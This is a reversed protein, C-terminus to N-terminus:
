PEVAGLFRAAPALPEVAFLLQKLRVVEVPDRGGRHVALAVHVAQPLVLGQILHLLKIEERSKRVERRAALELRVAHWHVAQALHWEVGVQEHDLALPALLPVVRLAHLEGPVLHLLHRVEHARLARLVVHFFPLM